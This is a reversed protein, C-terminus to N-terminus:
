LFLIDINRNLVYGTEQLQSFRCVWKPSTCTVQIEVAHQKKKKSTDHTNSLPIRFLPRFTSM